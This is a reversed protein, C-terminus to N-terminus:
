LYPRGPNVSPFHLNLVPGSDTRPIGCPIDSCRSYSRLTGSAWIAESPKDAAKSRNGIGTAKTRCLPGQVSKDDHRSIRCTLFLLSIALIERPIWPRICCLNIFYTKIHLQIISIQIAICIVNIKKDTRMQVNNSSRINVQVNTNHKATRSPGPPTRGAFGM